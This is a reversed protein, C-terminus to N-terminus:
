SPSLFAPFARLVCTEAAIRMVLRSSTSRSTPSTGTDVVGDGTIDAHPFPTSCTTDGTGYNHGYQGVFAGFDLIDIVSDDNLNGGVLWRNAGTFNATYQSGSISFGDGASATSRLTHRKDRATLCSYVEGCPVSFSATATGGTFTMPVDVFTSCGISPLGFSICRTFPGSAVTPSLEVTAIVTNFANVTVTQSCSSSNGCSDTATWTVTTPGTPFRAGLSLGDSRSVSIAPSATCNDSSTAAPVGSFTQVSTNVTVNDALLNQIGGSQSWGGDVDLTVYVVSYSGLLALADAHTGYFPGGFQQTEWRQDPSTVVNGTNSWQGITPCNTYNPLDGIYVHIEGDAQGDGNTDLGISVRPGAAM